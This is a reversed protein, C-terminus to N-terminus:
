GTFITRLDPLINYGSHHLIRLKIHRRIAHFLLFVILQLTDKMGLSGVLLHFVHLFGHTFDRGHCFFAAIDIEAAEGLHLTEAKEISQAVPEHREVELMRIQLRHMLLHPIAREQLIKIGDSREAVTVFIAKSQSHHSDYVPQRFIYAIHHLM